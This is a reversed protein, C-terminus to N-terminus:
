QIPEGLAEVRGLIFGQRTGQKEEETWSPDGSLGSGEGTSSDGGARRGHVASSLTAMKCNLAGSLATIRGIAKRQNRELFRINGVM